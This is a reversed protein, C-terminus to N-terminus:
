LTPGSGSGPIDSFLGQDDQDDCDEDDEKKVVSAAAAARSALIASVSFKLIPKVETTAEAAAPPTMPHIAERKVEQGAAAAAAAAATMAMSFLEYSKTVEAESASNSYKM